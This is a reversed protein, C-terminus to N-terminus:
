GSHTLVGYRERTRLAWASAPLSLLGCTAILGGLVFWGPRGWDICLVTILPPAVIASLSFSMGAFGQYQGQRERPALGMQLGWQGGSGVMEGVVHVLAGACILGGAVWASRGGAFAILAFGGLVWGGAIALARASTPVSTAGRSLRVQFLAVSVTNLLMVVAVLSKPADTRMALWLPVALEVVFFHIAFLGTLVSVVVYPVDHLVQLRPAGQARPPAPEVFPLRRVALSAVVFSAADIGFVTLYAWAQDIALALGGLLAGVSIGVNTIARLYAKFAVAKAGEALRAILGNRVASGGRDFVAQVALVLCLVAIDHTLLLGLTSVGALVMLLTLLERPGRNDALNGIPVQVLLGALAAVSMALGVQTAPLGVAHTFYLAFATMTAGNGVTNVLTAIALMRLDHDIPVGRRTLRAPPQDHVLSPAPAPNTVGPSTGVAV